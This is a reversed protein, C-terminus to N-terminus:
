NDLVGFVTRSAPAREVDGLYCLWCHDEPIIWGHSCDKPSKQAYKPASKPQPDSGCDPCIEGALLLRGSMCTDCVPKRKSKDVRRPRRPLPLTGDENYLLNSKRANCARGMLQLNDFAWIDEETWGDERALSQPYKHDISIAHRHEKDDEVMPLDCNPFQCAFGDREMLLLILSERDIIISEDVITMYISETTEM